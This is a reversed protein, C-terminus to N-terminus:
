VFNCQILDHLMQTLRRIRRSIKQKGCIASIKEPILGNEGVIGSEREEERGNM